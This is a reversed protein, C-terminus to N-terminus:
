EGPLESPDPLRADTPEERRMVTFEVRRNLDRALPDDHDVLPVDFGFGQAVLRERDVGQEIIYDRVAQARDESLRYNYDASGNNNTHGEILVVDIEPNEVMIRAVEDLVPRSKRLIQASGEKFFISQTIVIRDGSLEALHPCGDSYRPDQEPYIPETPCEDREFPVGDGDGDLEPCGDEDEFGDFTEPQDPCLDDIDLIGDGDRDSTLDVPEGIVATLVQPEPQKRRQYGVGLIVRATSSGPANNLGGGAGVVAWVGGKLQVRGSATLEVPWSQFGTTGQSVAELTLTTTPLVQVHVGAGVLPGAGAQINREPEFRGVRAGVNVNWGVRGLEQNVAVVGGGSFGPNGVFRAQNGTPLWVSPAVAVGPRIGAPAIAPIMAGLRADGMAMFAGSPMVGYVHVPVVAELRVWSGVSGSVAVNATALNTLLPAKGDPLVEVLPRVGHDGVVAVDWDGREPRHPTVLRTYHNQDGTTGMLQFGHADVGEAQAVGGLAFLAALTVVVGAGRRRGRRLGLVPLFLLGLWGVGSGGCGGGALDGTYDVFDAVGDWDRDDTGELADAYGDGDSDRDRANPIGDDDVDWDRVGDDDLDVRNEIVSDIGDGDDDDDFVDLTGDLDSDFADWADPGIEWGDPMEDGDTDPNEPDSGVHWEDWDLAGDKDRDASEAWGDCDDDLNNRLEEAGPYAEARTDDCDDGGWGAHQHGDGDRDFDDDGACDQDRGDYWTEWSGPFSTPDADDCDQGGYQDSAWGDLDADFDDWGDCDQDVGDYWVEGANPHVTPDTDDCDQGGAHSAVWGDGDFDNEPRGDCNSDIGDYPADEAGPHVNPDTDLCDLGGIFDAEYGDGDVDWIEFGDCDQDLGDYPSEVAGPHVRSMEDDCDLGGYVDWDWGDRDADYDSAMDCNQDVGDYYIETASPNVAHDADDCDTGGYRMDDYLDADADFDSLGDCDQDVGDYWVETAGPNVAPDTDDCDTGGGGDYGDGDVDTLDVGDCDQDIGDYPTEVAGPYVSADGDDCDTTEFYGDGDVDSVAADPGGYAGMDSVSGDVDFLSVQGTDMCPSTTLLHLDDNSPDGDASNAVFLSDSSINGDSGSPDTFSGVWDGGLNDVANNHFVDSGAAATSDGHIGGGDQADQFINNIISATGGTVMLHGGSSSAENAYFTNNVVSATVPADLVLGGGDGSSVNESFENNTWTSADTADVELAGAGTDSAANGWVFSQTVGLDEIGEAYLGGGDTAGNDSLVVTDLTVTEADVVHVAGGADGADNQELTCDSLSLDWSGSAAQLSLGGGSGLATNGDFACGDLALSVQGDALVGGGDDATADNSTFSVGSLTVSEGVDDLYLAGGGEASNGTFSTGTFSASTFVAAAGGEDGATNSDWTGDTDSFASAGAAAYLGGGDVSASNGDFDCRVCTLSAGNDAHVGGGKGVSTHDAANNTLTVDTFSGTAGDLRVAGGAAATNGSLTVTDLTLSSGSDVYIGGGEYGSAYNTAYCSEITSGTLTVSSSDEIYIGAGDGGDSVADSVTLGTATLTVSDLYLGAGKRLAETADVSVRTLTLTSNTAFIGGGHGGAICTEITVDTLDVTADTIYFAAGRNAVADVVDVTEFTPSGGDVTVAGGWDSSSGATDIEVRAIAPSSNEIVLAQASGGVITVDTLTGAEGDDWRFAYSRNSPVTITTSGTGAGVIDLDMGSLDVAENYTGAAVSITDGDSAAAIAGNITSYTGSGGVTLTAALASNVLLLLM